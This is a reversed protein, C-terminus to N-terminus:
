IWQPYGPRDSRTAAMGPMGPQLPIVETEVADVEVKQPLMEIQQQMKRQEQEALLMKKVRRMKVWIYVALAITLVFTAGFVVNKITNNGNQKKEVLLVGLYVLIIQKPLTLFTSVAFHWFKVDCTSFVATSFHSPIVSFRIIFVIWFGGDRTLRALAGYNLNTRELKQAKRRLTYKFAFWTGIEGIFTGAAVIAFGVWLGYVVGCLLAVIEHGFLPPFSILILIAIPILFGGPIERVKESFPRLKEVVEDHHLSIFITAVLIGIGLLHFPIYKPTLFIKKWNLPRYETFEPVEDKREGNRRAMEVDPM